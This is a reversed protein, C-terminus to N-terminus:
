PRQEMCVQLSNIKHARRAAEVTGQACSGPARVISNNERKAQLFDKTEKGLEDLELGLTGSKLFLAEM